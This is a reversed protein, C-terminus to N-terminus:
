NLSNLVISKNSLKFEKEPHPTISSQWTTHNKNWNRVCTGETLFMNRRKWPDSTQLTDKNLYPNRHSSNLDRMGYVNCMYM